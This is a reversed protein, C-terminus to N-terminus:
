ITCFCQFSASQFVGSVIYTGDLQDGRSWSVTKGLINDTTNFLKLAMKDSLLVNHKGPLIKEKPGRIMQYSFVKFFTNQVYQPQAKINKEGFTLIGMNERVVSVAYEVENFERAMSQALLAPTTEHTDITGNDNISTKIVQFLRSDNRNFKDISREDRVWLYILFSCALGTSLGIMNLITFQKDKVLNRWAIKFYNTLM